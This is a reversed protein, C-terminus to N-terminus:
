YESSLILTAYNDSVSFGGSQIMETNLNDIFFLKCDQDISYFTQLYDIGSHQKVLKRTFNLIEAIEKTPITSMVGKSLYFDGEFFYTGGQEAIHYELNSQFEYQSIIYGLQIEDIKLQEAILQDSLKSRRLDKYAKYLELTNDISLTRM